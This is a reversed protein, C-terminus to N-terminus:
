LLRVQVATVESVTQVKQEQAPPLMITSREFHVNHDTDYM